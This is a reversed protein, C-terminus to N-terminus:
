KVELSLNKTVLSYSALHAESGAHVGNGQRSGFGPRGARLGDSYVCFLVCGM